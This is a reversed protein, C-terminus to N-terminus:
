PKATNTRTPSPGRERWHGALRSISYYTLLRKFSRQLLATLETGTMETMPPSVSLVVTVQTPSCSGLGPQWALLRSRLSHTEELRTFCRSIAAVPADTQFSVFFLVEGPGPDLHEM